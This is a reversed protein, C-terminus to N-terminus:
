EQIEIDTQSEEPQPEIQNYIYMTVLGSVSNMMASLLAVFFVLTILVFFGSRLLLSVGLYFSGKYILGIIAALPIFSVSFGLFSIFGIIAGYMAGQKIDLIGMMQMKKMYVMIIPAALIFLAFFSLNCIFPIVTLVGLVLGLLGSLISMQKFLLEKILM